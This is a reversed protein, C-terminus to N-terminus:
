IAGKMKLFDYVDKTSFDPRYDLHYISKIYQKGEPTEFYLKKVISYVNYKHEDDEGIEFYSDITITDGKSISYPLSIEKNKDMEIYFLDKVELTLASKIATLQLKELAKYTISSSHDSSSSSSRKIIPSEQEMEKSLLIKGINTPIIRGDSFFVKVMTVKTEPIYESENEEIYMSIVNLKYNGHVSYTKTDKVMCRIDMGLIEPFTVHTVKNEDSKNTIYYLEFISDSRVEKEYYHILFVPRELTNAMYFILNLILATAIIILVVIIPKNRKM